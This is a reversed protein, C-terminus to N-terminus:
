NADTKGFWKRERIGSEKESTEADLTEEVIESKKIGRDNSESGLM